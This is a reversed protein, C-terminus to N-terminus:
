NKGADVSQLPCAVGTTPGSAYGDVGECIEVSSTGDCGCAIKCAVPPVPCPADGTCSTTSEVCRPLADCSGVPYLCTSGSPCEMNPGCSGADTGGDPPPPLAGGDGCPGTGSAPASGYGAPYGCGSYAEEGNCGCLLEIANCEPTGPAPDEVCEGAAGCSGIPFYCSSGAPCAGDKGCAGLHTGTDPGSGADIPPSGDVACESDGITPGSAFGPPFGCGTTVLTGDCGCLAEIAGCEPTEPSPDAFCQGKTGCAGIPYFCTSGSPCSESPGCEVGTGGGDAPSGSDPDPV